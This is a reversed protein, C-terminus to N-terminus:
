QTVTLINEARGPSKGMATIRGDVGNTGLQRFRAIAQDSRALLNQSIEIRQQTRKLLEAVYSSSIGAQNVRVM